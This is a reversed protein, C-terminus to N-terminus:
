LRGNFHAAQQMTRLNPPFAFDTRQLRQSSLVLQQSPSFYSFSTHTGITVNCIVDECLQKTRCTYVSNSNFSKVSFAVSM